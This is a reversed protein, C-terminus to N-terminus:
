FLGGVNSSCLHLNSRPKLRQTVFEIKLKPKKVLLDRDRVDFEVIIDEPSNADRSIRLKIGGLDESWEM